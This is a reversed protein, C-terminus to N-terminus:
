WAPAFATARSRGTCCRASSRVMVYEPRPVVVRGSPVVPWTGTAYTAYSPVLVPHAFALPGSAQTDACDFQTQLM